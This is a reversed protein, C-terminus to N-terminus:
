GNLLKFNKCLGSNCFRLAFNKGNEPADFILGIYYSVEPQLKDSFANFGGQIYNAYESATIWEDNASDFQKGSEDVMKFDKSNLYASSRDNNVLNVFLVLRRQSLAQSDYKNILANNWDPQGTISINFNGVAVSQGIRVLETQSTGSSTSTGQSVCGSVIVTVVLFFLLIINKVKSM